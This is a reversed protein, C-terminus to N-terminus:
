DLQFPAGPILSCNWFVYLDYTDREPDDFLMRVNDKKESLSIDLLVAGVTRGIACASLVGKREQEVFLRSIPVVDKKSELSHSLLDVIFPSGRIEQDFWFVHLKYVDERPPAFSIQYKEREYQRLAVEVQGVSQGFASASLLGRIGMQPEFTVSVAPEKLQEEFSVVYPSGHVPQGSWYVSITYTDNKKPIFSTRYLEQSVEQVSVFLSEDTSSTINATLTGTGAQSTDFVFEIPNGATLPVVPDFSVVKDSSPRLRMPITFPSGPISTGNYTIKVHYDDQYITKFHVTYTSHGSQRISVSPMAGTNTGLSTVDFCGPDRNPASISFTIPEGAIHYGAHSTPKTLIINELKEEKVQISIPEELFPRGDFLLFISYSGPETPTFAVRFNSDGEDTINCRFDTRPGKGSARLIGEGANYTSVLFSIPQYVHYSAILISDIDVTCRSPDNVTFDLPSDPIPSGDYAIEVTYEGVHKPHFTVACVGDQVDTVECEDETEPGRVKASLEGREAETADVIFSVPEGVRKRNIPMDKVFCRGAPTSDAPRVQYPSGPILFGDWKIEIIYSGAQVPVYQYSHLDDDRALLTLEVPKSPGYVTASLNGPGAGKTSVKFYSPQGLMGGALGAGTAVCMRPNSVLCAFPSNPLPVGNWTVAIQHSETVTPVFTVRQLGESLPTISAEIFEGGPSEVAVELRGAGMSSCDILFETPEGVCARNLGKGTVSCSAVKASDVHTVSYPAGKLHEGACRVDVTYTGPITPTYQYSCDGSPSTIEDFDVVSGDPSTITIAFDKEFIDSGQISFSTGEGALAGTVGPGIVALDASQATQKGIFRFQTLYALIAIQNGEPNILKRPSLLPQVGLTETAVKMASQARVLPTNDELASVPPLSSPAFARVLSCLASGDRWDSAFNSISQRVVVSDLWELLCTQGISNPQCFYSLYTMVSLEDPDGALDEPAIVQPINFRKEALSMANTLNEVARNPDLSAHDPILGPECYDVLGALNRGDSWNSTFNSIKSHPLAAQFWSLFVKRPCQIQYRLVLRWILGLTLKMNGDCIDSPRVSVLKIGEDEMFDFVLKINELQQVRMKPEKQYRTKISSGSLVEMLKILVLGSRLDTRLDAISLGAGELQRNVWRTFTKEQQQVWKKEKQTDDIKRPSPNTSPHSSIVTFVDHTGGVKGRVENMFQFYGSSTPSPISGNSPKSEAM